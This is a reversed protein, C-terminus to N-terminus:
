LERAIDNYKDNIKYTKKNLHYKEKKDDDNKM